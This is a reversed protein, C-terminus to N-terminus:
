DDGSSSISDIPEQNRVCLLNVVPDVLQGFKSPLSPRLISRGRPRFSTYAWLKKPRVQFSDISRCVRSSLANRAGSRGWFCFSPAGSAVIATGSGSENSLILVCSTHLTGSRESISSRSRRKTIGYIAFEYGTVTPFKARCPACPHSDSAIGNLRGSVSPFPILFLSRLRPM